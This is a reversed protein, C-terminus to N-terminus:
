KPEAGLNGGPWGREPMSVLAARRARVASPEGVEVRAVAATMSPSPPGPWPGRVCATMEASAGACTGGSRPVSQPPPGPTLSSGM